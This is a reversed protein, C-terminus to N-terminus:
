YDALVHCVRISFIWVTRLCILEYFNFLIRKRAGPSPRKKPGFHRFLGDNPCIKRVELITARTHARKSPTSVVLKHVHMVTDHTNELGCPKAIEKAAAGELAGLMPFQECRFFVLTYLEPAMSVTYRSIHSWLATRIHSEPVLGSTQGTKGIKIGM